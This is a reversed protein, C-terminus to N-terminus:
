LVDGRLHHNLAGEARVEATRRDPAWGSDILKGKLDGRMLWIWFSYKRLQWEVGLLWPEKRTIVITRYQAM